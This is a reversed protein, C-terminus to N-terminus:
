NRMRSLKECFGSSQATVPIFDFAFENSLSFGLLKMHNSWSYAVDRIKMLKM